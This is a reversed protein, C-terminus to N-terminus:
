AMHPMCFCTQRWCDKCTPKRWNCHNSTKYWQWQLYNSRIVVHVFRRNKIQYLKHTCTPTLLMLLTFNYIVDPGVLPSFDECLYLAILRSCRRSAHIRLRKTTYYSRDSHNSRKERVSTLGIFRWCTLNILDSSNSCTESDCWRKVSRAVFEWLRIVCWVTQQDIFCPLLNLLLSGVNISGTCTIHPTNIRRDASMSSIRASDAM